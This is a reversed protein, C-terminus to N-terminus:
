EARSVAPRSSRARLVFFPIALLPYVQTASFFRQALVILSQDSLLLMASISALGLSIGIPVGILLCALLVGLLVLASM